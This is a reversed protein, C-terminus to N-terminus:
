GWFNRPHLTLFDYRTFDSDWTAAHTIGESEAIDAMIAESVSIERNDFGLFRDVSDLYRTETIYHIKFYDSNRVTELCTDAAERNNSGHGIATAAINLIEVTVHITNFPIETEYVFALLATSYEHMKYEEDNHQDIDEDDYFMYELMKKGIIFDTDPTRMEPQIFCSADPERLDGIEPM